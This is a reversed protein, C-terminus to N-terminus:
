ETASLYKSIFLRARVRIPNGTEPDKATPDAIWSQYEGDAGKPFKTMGEISYGSGSNYGKWDLKVQYTRGATSEVADALQQESTFTGRVGNARLYDGIQSAKSTSSGNKRDFVTASVKQFKLAMGDFPGGLITPSIDASLAGGKTRGFATQTFESPAQVTYTGSPPLRFTNEKM